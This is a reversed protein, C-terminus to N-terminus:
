LEESLLAALFNETMRVMRDRFSPLPGRWGGPHNKGGFRNHVSFWL